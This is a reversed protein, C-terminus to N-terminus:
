LRDRGSRGGDGFLFDLIQELEPVTSQGSKVGVLNRGSVGLLSSRAQQRSNRINGSSVVGGDLAVENVEALLFRLSGDQFGVDGDSVVPGHVVTDVFEGHSGGAILDLGSVGENVSEFVSFPLNGVVVGTLHRLFNDRLGRDRFQGSGVLDSPNSCPLALLKNCNSRM